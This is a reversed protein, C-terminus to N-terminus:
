GGKVVVLGPDPLEVDLLDLFFQLHAQGQDDAHFLRNKVMFTHRSLREDSFLDGQIPLENMVYASPIAAPIGDESGHEAVLAARARATFIFNLGPKL